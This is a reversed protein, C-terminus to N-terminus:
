CVVKEGAYALTSSRISLAGATGYLLDPSFVWLPHSRSLTSGSWGASLLYICVKKGKIKKERAGRKGKQRHSHRKRSTQHEAMIPPPLHKWSKPTDSKPTFAPANGATPHPPWNPAYHLTKRHSTSLYSFFITNRIRHKHLLHPYLPPPLESTSTQHHNVHM